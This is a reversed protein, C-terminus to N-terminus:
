TQRRELWSPQTLEYAIQTAALGVITSRFIAARCGDWVKFGTKSAKLWAKEDPDSAAFPMLVGIRRMREAQQARAVLSWVVTAGGLASIFKRRASNIAM